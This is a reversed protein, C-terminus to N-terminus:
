QVSDKNMVAGSANLKALVLPTIDFRDNGLLVGSGGGENLIYDYDNEAMMEELIEKVRVGFQNQLAVQDEQISNLALQLQQQIQQEKRGLREQESQMKKPTLLGQQAQNQLQQVEGSFARVRADHNKQAEAYNTELRALEAALEGYGAQLSDIRVFVVSLGTAAEAPAPPASAPASDPSQCAFCVLLFVFGGLVRHFNM